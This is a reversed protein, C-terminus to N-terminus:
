QTKMKGDLDPRRAVAHGARCSGTRCTRRSCAGRRTAHIARRTASSGHTTAGISNRCGRPHGGRALGQQDHQSSSRRDHPAGLLDFAAAVREVRHVPLRSGGLGAPPRHPPTWGASPDSRAPEHNGLIIRSQEVWGLFHSRYLLVVQIGAIAIVAAAILSPGVAQFRGLGSLSMRSYRSRLSRCRPSSTAPTSPM